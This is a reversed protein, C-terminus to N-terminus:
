EEACYRTCGNCGLLPLFYWWRDLLIEEGPETCFELAQEALGVVGMRLLGPERYIFFSLKSDRKLANISMIVM